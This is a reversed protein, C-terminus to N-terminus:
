GGKRGDKHCMEISAAAYLRILYPLTMFCCLFRKLFNWLKSNFLYHSRLPLPLQLCYFLQLLTFSIKRSGVSRVRNSLLLFFANQFPFLLLLPHFVSLYLNGLNSGAPLPLYYRHLRIASSSMANRSQFPAIWVPIYLKWTRWECRAM